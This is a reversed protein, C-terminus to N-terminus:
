PRITVSVVAAAPLAFRLSKGDFPLPVAPSPKVADPAEFTNCAQPIASLTTACANAPLPVDFSTLEIEKAEGYSLNAATLTIAGDKESASVSVDKPAGAVHIHRAGQHAKMMDFVHYTPTM